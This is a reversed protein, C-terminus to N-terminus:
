SAQDGGDSRCASLPMRVNRCFLHRDETPADPCPQHASSTDRVTFCLLLCHSSCRNKEMVYRRHAQPRVADSPGPLLKKLTYTGTATCLVRRAQVGASTHVLSSLLYSCPIVRLRCSLAFAQLIALAAFCRLLGDPSIRLVPPYAAFGSQGGVVLFASRESDPPATEDRPANRTQPATDTWTDVRPANRTQPHQGLVRLTGLRPHQRM